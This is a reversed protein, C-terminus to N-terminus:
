MLKVDSNGLKYDLNHEDLDIGRMLQSGVIMDNDTCTESWNQSNYVDILFPQGETAYKTIWKKDYNQYRHYKQM